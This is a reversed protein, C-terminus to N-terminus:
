KVNEALFKELELLVKTTTEIGDIAMFAHIAKLERDDFFVNKHVCGCKELERSLKLSQSKHLKDVGGSAIFVNKLGSLDYCLPSYKKLDAKRESTGEKGRLCSNVYTKINIFKSKLATEFDFVGYFLVTAKISEFIDHSFGDMENKAFVTALMAMHAGSSDGALIIKSEDGGFEHAKSKAFKIADLVDDMIKDIKCKPALRYNCNFVVYGMAAFRRCLTTFINKTYVSWGGGHFYVMVPKKEQSKVGEDCFHIDCKHFKNGNEKYAVNNITKVGQVKKHFNYVLNSLLTAISSVFKIGYIKM